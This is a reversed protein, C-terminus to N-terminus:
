LIKTLLERAERETRAVYDPTVAGNGISGRRNFWVTKWGARAAGVIDREFSDGIYYSEERNLGLKGVVHDFIARDPKTVGLEGSVFVNKEPIWKLLGLTRIKDWQHETPGNTIIGLLAKGAFADLASKMEDSMELRGQAEMYYSQFALAREEPMSIGFEGFTGQIRNIYMRELSIEGRSSAEFAIDSHRKSAVFMEELDLGTGTGFMRVFAREFPQAQNYLTDDVDFLFAKM